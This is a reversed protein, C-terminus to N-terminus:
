GLGFKIKLAEILLGVAVPAGINSMFTKLKSSDKNEIITILELLSSIQQESNKKDNISKDSFAENFFTLTDDLSNIKNLIKENLGVLEKNYRSIDENYKVLDRLYDNQEEALEVLPNKFDSMDPIDISHINFQPIDSEKFLQTNIQPVKIDGLKTKLNEFAKLTDSLGDFNDM